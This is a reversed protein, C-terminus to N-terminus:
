SEYFDELILILIQITVMYIFMGEGRVGISFIGVIRIMGRMEMM